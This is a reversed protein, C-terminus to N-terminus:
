VTTEPNQIRPGIGTRPNAEYEKLINNLRVLTTLNWNEECGHPAYLKGYWHGYLIPSVYQVEELTRAIEVNIMHQDAM